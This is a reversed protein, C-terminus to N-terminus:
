RDVRSSPSTPFHIGRGACLPIGRKELHSIKGLLGWTSKRKCRMPWFRTVRGGCAQQQGCFIPHSTSTFIPGRHHHRNGGEGLYSNDQGPPFSTAVPFVLGPTAMTCKQFKSITLSKQIQAKWCTQPVALPRLGMRWVPCYFILPTSHSGM